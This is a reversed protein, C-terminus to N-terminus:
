EGPLTFGHKKLVEGGAPGIVYARVADAAARDQAWNLIVGGQEMKPYADRPIRAFKGKDKMAPALAISLSIVGVDAAGTDIFHATQAVNEGLVLKDKVEEYLGLQKLAAEAARGYPAHKPNAIAIKRVREDRLAEVGKGQVDLPSDKRTWVVIQGIAYVFESEKGALGAEILKRPYDVDASLYLDFPARSSLQAFFNGSSGYTPRADIDTHKKQFSALVDDLAFKLDSAAAISVVRKKAEPAADPRSAPSCGILILAEALSAVLVAGRMLIPKKKVPSTKWM